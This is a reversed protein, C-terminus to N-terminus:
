SQVERAPPLLRTGRDDRPVGSLLPPMAGSAYLQPLQPLTYEAVTQDNPLVAYPLLSEEVKVIGAEHAIRLSKIYEGLARWREVCDQQWVERAKDESRFIHRGATYGYVKMDFPPLPLLLRYRIDQREFLIIARGAQDDDLWVRRSAGLRQLEREIEDKTQRIGVRTGSAYQSRRRPTTTM